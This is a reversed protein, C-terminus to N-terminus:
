LLMHVYMSQIHPTILLEGATPKDWYKNPHAQEDGRNYTYCPRCHTMQQKLIGWIKGTSNFALLFLYLKPHSMEDSPKIVHVGKWRKVASFTEFGHAITGIRKYTAATIM